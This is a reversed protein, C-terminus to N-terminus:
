SAGSPCEAEAVPAPDVESVGFGALRQHQCRPRQAEAHSTGEEDRCREGSSPCRHPAEKLTAKVSSLDIPNADRPTTTSGDKEALGRDAAELTRASTERDIRSTSNTMIGSVPM